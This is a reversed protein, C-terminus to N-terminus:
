SVLLMSVLLSYPHLIVHIRCISFYYSILIRSCSIIFYVWMWVCALGLTTSLLVHDDLISLFLSLASLSYCVNDFLFLFKALLM